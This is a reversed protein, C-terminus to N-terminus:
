YDYEKGTKDNYIDDIDGKLYKQINDKIRKRNSKPYSGHHGKGHTDWYAYLKNKVYEYEQELPGGKDRYHTIINPKAKLVIWHEPIDAYYWKRGYLKYADSLTDLSLYQQVGYPLEEFREVHIPRKDPGLNILRRKKHETITYEKKGQRILRVEKESNIIKDKRYGYDLVTQINAAEPHKAFDDRLKQIVIWGKQIPTDLPLLPLKHIEGILQNYRKELKIFEKYERDFKNLQM